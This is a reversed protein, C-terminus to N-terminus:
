SAGLVGDTVGSLRWRRGVRTVSLPFGVTETGVIVVAYKFNGGLVVDVRWVKGGGGLDCWLFFKYCEM